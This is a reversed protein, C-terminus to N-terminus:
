GAGGGTLPRMLTAHTNVRHIRTFFQHFSATFTYLTYTSKYISTYVAPHAVELKVVMFWHTAIYVMLYGVLVMCRYLSQVTCQYYNDSM